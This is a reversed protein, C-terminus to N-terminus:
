SAKKGTANKERWAAPLAEEIPKNTQRTNDLMGATFGWTEGKGKTLVGWYYFIKEDQNATFKIGDESHLSLKAKLERDTGIHVTVTEPTGPFTIWRRAVYRNNQTKDPQLSLTSITLGNISLTTKLDSHISKPQNM